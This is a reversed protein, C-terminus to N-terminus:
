EHWLRIEQALEKISKVVFIKDILRPAHLNQDILMHAQKLYYLAKRECEEMTPSTKAYRVFDPIKKHKM